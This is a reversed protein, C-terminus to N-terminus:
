ITVGLIHLAETMDAILARQIANDIADSDTAQVFLGHFVRGAKDTWEVGDPIYRFFPIAGDVMGDFIDTQIETRKGDDELHCMYDDDLYITRM